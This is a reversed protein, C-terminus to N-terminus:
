VPVLLYGVWRAFAFVGATGLVMIVVYLLKLPWGWTSFEEGLTMNEPRRDLSPVVDPGRVVEYEADIVAPKKSM